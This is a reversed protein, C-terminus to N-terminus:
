NSLSQHSRMCHIREHLPVEKCICIKDRSWFLVIQVRKHNNNFCQTRVVTQAQIEPTVVTRGALLSLSMM